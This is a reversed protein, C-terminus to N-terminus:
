PESGGSGARTGEVSGALRLSRLLPEFAIRNADAFQAPRAFADIVYEVRPKYVHVSRTEVPRGGVTGRGRVELAPSGDIEGISTRLVLFGPARRRLSDIVRERSALVSAPDTALDDRPYVYVTAVAGGSTLQAVAPPPGEAALWTRPHRFSVTGESSTFTATRGPEGLANLNPPEARENGCGVAGLALVALLSPWTRTISV